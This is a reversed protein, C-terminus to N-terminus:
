KKNTSLDQGPLRLPLNTSRPFPTIFKPDKIKPQDRVGCDPPCYAFPVSSQPKHVLHLSWSDTCLPGLCYPSTSGLNLTMSCFRGLCVALWHPRTPFVCTQTIISLSPTGLDAALLSSVRALHHSFDGGRQKRQALRFM